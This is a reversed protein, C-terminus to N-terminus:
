TWNGELTLGRFEAGFRLIGVDANNTYLSVRFASFLSMISKLTPFNGGDWAQLLGIDLWVVNPSGSDEFYRSKLSVPDSAIVFLHLRRISSLESELCEVRTAKRMEIELCGRM